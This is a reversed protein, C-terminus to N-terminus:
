YEIKNEKHHLTWGRHKKTAGSALRLLQRPCLGNDKGFKNKNFVTHLTGEPDKYVTNYMRVKCGELANDQQSVFCCTEPSYIKSSGSNIDKDLVCGEIYNMEFWKAFNQYDHWEPCVEVDKYMYLRGSHLKRNYCRDIMSRWVSYSPVHVGNIKSPYEGDGIFGVGQIRPHKKDKVAGGRVEKAAAWREYGTAEFKVLIKTASIYEKM